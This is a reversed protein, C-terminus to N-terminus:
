SGCNPSDITSLYALELVISYIELYLLGNHINEKITKLGNINVTNLINTSNINLHPFM